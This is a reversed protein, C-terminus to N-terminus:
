DEVRVGDVTKFVVVDFCGDFLRSVMGEITNWRADSEIGFEEKLLHLLKNGTDLADKLYLFGTGRLNGKAIEEKIDDFDIADLEEIEWEEWGDDRADKKFAELEAKFEEEAFKIEYGFVENTCAWKVDQVTKQEYPVVTAQFNAEADTRNKGEVIWEKPFDEGLDCIVKYRYTTEKKM